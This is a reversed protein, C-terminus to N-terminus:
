LNSLVLASAQPKNLGDVDFSLSAAAAQVRAEMPPDYGTSVTILAGTGGIAMLTLGMAVAIAEGVGEFGCGGGGHSCSDYDDYGSNRSSKGNSGSVVLATGLGFAISDLVYMAKREGSRGNIACASQMAVFAILAVLAVPKHLSKKNLM